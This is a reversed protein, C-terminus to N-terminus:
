TEIDGLSSTLLMNTLMVVTYVERRWNFHGM